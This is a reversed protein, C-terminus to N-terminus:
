EKGGLTKGELFLFYIVLQRKYVDPADAGAAPLSLSAALSLASLFVIFRKNKM